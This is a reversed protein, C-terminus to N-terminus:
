IVGPYKGLLFSSSHECLFFIEECINLIMKNMVPAFQFGGLHGEPLSHTFLNTIYM